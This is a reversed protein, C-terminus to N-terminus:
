AESHAVSGRALALLAKSRQYRALREALAPPLQTAPEFGLRQYFGLLDPHCFLWVPGTTRALAHEILQSALGQRRETPAVLLGTLWHGHDVPTLNLAALIEQRRAVWTQAGDPARMPSRHTRYFKGLLPKLLPALLECHIDRTEHM